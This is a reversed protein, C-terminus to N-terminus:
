QLVNLKGHLISAKLAMTYTFLSVKSTFAALPHVMSNKSSLLTVPPTLHANKILMKKKLKLSHLM